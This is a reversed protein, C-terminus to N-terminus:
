AGWYQLNYLQYLNVASKVNKLLKGLCDSQFLFKIKGTSQAYYCGSFMGHMIRVQHGSVNIFHGDSTMLYGEPSVDDQKDSVVIRRM